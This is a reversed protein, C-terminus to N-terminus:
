IDRIQQRLNEREALKSRMPEPLDELQITGVNILATILDEVARGAFAGDGFDPDHALEAILQQRLILDREEIRMDYYAVYPLITEAPDESTVYGWFRDNILNGSESLESFVPATGVGDVWKLLYSVPSKTM